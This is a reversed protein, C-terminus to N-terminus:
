KVSMKPRILMMVNSLPDLDEWYISRTDNYVVGGM